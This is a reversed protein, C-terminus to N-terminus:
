RRQLASQEHALLESSLNSWREIDEANSYQNMLKYFLTVLEETWGRRITNKALFVCSSLEVLLKPENVIRPIRKTLNSIIKKSITESRSAIEILSRISGYKVSINEDKDVLELLANAFDKEAVGGMVHAVRWRVVPTGEHSMRVIEKVQDSSITLRKVVNASTWGLVSDEDSLLRINEDSCPTEPYIVFLKQWAVDTEQPVPPFSQVYLILDGLSATKRMTVADGDISLLLADNARQASREHRDFRKEALNGYMVRKIAKPVWSVDGVDALAYGAAYANWDYVARLFAEIKEDGKLLELAFSIADFSNQDFTLANFTKHRREFSWLEPHTAVYRSALFDHMWHHNFSFKGEGVEELLGGVLLADAARADARREFNEMSFSRSGDEVYVEFAAKSVTELGDPTLHGHEEIFSRLTSVPSDSLKGELARNLYFPNSALEMAKKHLKTEGLANQIAADGIPLPMSFAWRADDGLKRRVLRDAVV